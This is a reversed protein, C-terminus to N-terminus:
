KVVQDGPLFDGDVADTRPDEDGVLFEYPQGGGCADLRDDLEVTYPIEVQGSGGLYGAWNSGPTELASEIRGSFETRADLSVISGSLDAVSRHM